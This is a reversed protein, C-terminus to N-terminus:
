AESYFFIRRIMNRAADNCSLAFQHIQSIMEQPLDPSLHSSAPLSIRYTSIGASSLLTLLRKPQAPRPAAFFCSIVQTLLSQQSPRASILSLPQTVTLTSTCIQRSPFICTCLPVFTCIHLHFFFTYLSHINFFHFAVPLCILYVNFTVILNSSRLHPFPRHPLCM